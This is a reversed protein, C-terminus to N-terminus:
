NISPTNQTRQAPSAIGMVFKQLPEMVVNLLGDLKTGPCSTVMVQLRGLPLKIHFLGRNVETVSESSSPSVLPVLSSPAIVKVRVLATVLGECHTVAVAVM